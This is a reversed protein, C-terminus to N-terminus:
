GHICRYIVKVIKFEFRTDHFLRRHLSQLFPSLASSLQMKRGIFNGEGTAANNLPVCCPQRHLIVPQPIQRRFNGFTQSLVKHHGNETGLVMIENTWQLWLKENAQNMWHIISNLTVMITISMLRCFRPSVSSCRCILSLKQEKQTNEKKKQPFGTLESLIIYSDIPHLFLKLVVFSLLIMTSSNITSTNKPGRVPM